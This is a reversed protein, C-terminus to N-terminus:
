FGVDLLFNRASNTIKLFDAANMAEIADSEIGAARASLKAQFDRSIEPSLAYRGNAAMEADTNIIDHGTLHEFDFTLQKYTKGEYDFPRRFIHEYINKGRPKLAASGEQTVLATTQPMEKQGQEHNGARAVISDQPMGAAGAASSKLEEIM